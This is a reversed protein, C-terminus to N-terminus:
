INGHWERRTSFDATVRGKKGRNTHEGRAEKFIKEKVQIKQLKFTIHRPTSNNQKNAQKNM